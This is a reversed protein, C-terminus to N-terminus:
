SFVVCDKIIKEGKVIMRVMEVCCFGCFGCDINFFIFVKEEVLDVFKELERIVDIVLFGNIEIIGRLVVVGSVVIVFGGDFEEVEELMRVCVVRLVYEVLKFGEFFLFDVSVMLFFVNIDKVKFFFVDMDEVRVLVVDVM